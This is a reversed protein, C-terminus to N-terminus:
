RLFAPRRKELFARVGERGDHSDAAARIALTELRMAGEAYSAARDRILRKAGVQATRSGAVLSNIIQELVADLDDDPHVSSVLGSAHAEAASMIPNLLALHLTRHLGLTATLLSSGGDPTLGVKTYALTFKASAAAIVIDAAAALPFGAGAAVGKVVSIVIADLHYLESIVRHLSEALEEIYAGPDAAAAFAALDGGVSFAPGRSGLVIVRSDARRAQKVADALQGVSELTLPSGDSPNALEIRAVGHDIRLTLAETM